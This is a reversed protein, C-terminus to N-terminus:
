RDSTTIMIAKILNRRDISCAGIHHKLSLYYQSNNMSQHVTSLIDAIFTAPSKNLKRM